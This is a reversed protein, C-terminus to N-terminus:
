FACYTVIDFFPKVLIDFVLCDHIVSRWRQECGNGWQRRYAIRGITLTCSSFPAVSVPLMCLFNAFIARTTGAINEGGYLCVSVCVSMSMVM